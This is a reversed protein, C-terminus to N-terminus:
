WRQRISPSEVRQTSRGVLGTTAVDSDKVAGTDGEGMKHRSECAQGVVKGGRNQPSAGDGLWHVFHRPGVPAGAEFRRASRRGCGSRVEGHQLMQENRIRRRSAECQRARVEVLITKVAVVIFREDLRRYESANSFCGVVDDDQEALEIVLVDCRLTPRASFECHIGPLSRMRLRVM